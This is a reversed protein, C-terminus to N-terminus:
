AVAILLTAISGIRDALGPGQYFVGLTILGILWLPAFTNGLAVIPNRYVPIHFHVFSVNDGM